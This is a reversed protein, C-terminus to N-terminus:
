KDKVGQVLKGFWAHQASSLFSRDVLLQRLDWFSAGLQFYGHMSLQIQNLEGCVACLSCMSLLPQIMYSSLM